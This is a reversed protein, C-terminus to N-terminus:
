VGQTILPRTIICPKELNDVGALNGIEYWGKDKMVVYKTLYHTCGLDPKYVMFRTGGYRNFWWRHYISYRAGELNALLFHIHPSGVATFELCVYYGIKHKETAEVYRLFQKAQNKVTYSRPLAREPDYTLTVFWTWNYQDLWTCWAQRLPNVSQNSHQISLM